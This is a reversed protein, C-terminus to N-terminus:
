HAELAHVVDAVTEAENFAPVIASVSKAPIEKNQSSAHAPLSLLRSVIHNAVWRWFLVAPVFLVLLLIARHARSALIGTGSRLVLRILLLVGLWTIVSAANVGLYRLYRLRTVGALVQTAIRTGYVFKSCFLVKLGHRRFLEAVRSFRGRWRESPLRDLKHVPAFRGVLYWGSDGLLTAVAAVVVVLILNLKGLLALYMAPLLVTEGGLILGGLLLLYEHQM